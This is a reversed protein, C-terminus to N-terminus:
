ANSLSILKKWNKQILAEKKKRSWGKIQREAALAEYRSNFTDVFVVTIPQRSATYGAVRGERHESIRKEIFDTHGTYYSGDSCKLIYVYFPKMFKYGNGITDM